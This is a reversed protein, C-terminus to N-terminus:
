GFVIIIWRSRVRKWGDEKLAQNLHSIRPVSIIHELGNYTRVYDVTDLAYELPQVRRTHRKM